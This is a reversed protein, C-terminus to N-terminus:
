VGGGEFAFDRKIADVVGDSGFLHDVEGVGIILYTSFFRRTEAPAACSWNKMKLKENKIQAFRLTRRGQHNEHEM